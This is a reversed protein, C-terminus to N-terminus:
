HPGLLFPTLFFATGRHGHFIQERSKSLQSGVVCRKAVLYRSGVVCRNCSLRASGGRDAPSSDTGRTESPGRGDSPQNGLRAAENPARALLASFEPSGAGAGLRRGGRWAGRG